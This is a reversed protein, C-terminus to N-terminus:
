HHPIIIRTIDNYFAYVTLLIIFLVGVQMIVLKIKKNLPKRIIAEIITIVVNGGDLIPLPLINLIAFNIGVLATFYMLAALGRKAQHAAQQAILIPGGLDKSPIKGEILKVLSILVLYSLNVSEKGASLIASFPNDKQIGFDGAPMIGIIPTRVKEGFIDKEVRIEPKVKVVFLNRNREITLMIEKDQNETIIKKMEDWNSVKQKNIQVITDGKQIGVSYAPSNKMVEGITTKLYPVGHIFVIWLLFMSFLWNFAPGAVLIMLKKWSAQNAYSRAKDDETLHEEEDLSNEGIMKVYGGLPLVSLRYETEGINKKLLAPGFGLSFISVKVNFIKAFTFHGLEHVFILIAIVIIASIISLM